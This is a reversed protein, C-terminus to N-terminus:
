GRFFSFYTQGYHRVDFLAPHETWQINQHHELVLIGRPELCGAAIITDPLTSMTKLGYPPGAFVLHFRNKNAKLFRFVDMKYIRIYNLIKFQDVTKRVFSICPGHKDVYTAETCGRSICEYCHAGSGGFLDLFRIDEFNILNELINYLSEKSIDTTPRTPWKDAPPHFRLGRMKGGIIRM